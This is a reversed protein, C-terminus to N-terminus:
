SLTSYVENLDLVLDTAATTFVCVRHNAGVPVTVSNAVTQGAVYNLNSALPRESSCPFVTVFGSARPGDVTLNMTVATANPPVGAVNDLNLETVTGADVSGTVRTDLLRQQGANTPFGVASSPSYFGNVDVVLDTATSVFFCVARNSGIRVVASNAITQGAVFNVNSALPVPGGCPYATVFGPSAPGDVTINLLVATADDPMSRGAVSVAFSTGAPVPSGGERTDAIRYPDAAALRGIGESPSYAGNLDIVVDTAVDSVLCVRGSGDLSVSVSSAVTQNALFNVNSTPPRAVDCSFVTIYGSLAASTATVNLVVWSADAPVGSLGAISLHRVIGAALTTDGDRTDLLRVPDIAVFGGGPQAVTGSFVTTAPSGVGNGANITFSYAGGVTPTGTIAGTATDFSLGAPLAGAVVSYAPTPTGTALVGDVFRLGVHMADITADVWTPAEGVDVSIQSSLNPLFGNTTTVTFQYAGAVTPTGTIAGTTNNLVLGAPLSGATISYTPAPAGSARVGDAYVIGVRMTGLLLDTWTPLVGVNGTFQEVLDPAIGNAATITFDYATGASTAVGTLAGTATDFTLGGPLVGGSLSYTAAPHGSASVGDAYVVNHRIPGLTQDTWTLAETVTGSFAQTVPSGVGNDASITFGYAGDTTPTGTIAGTTGNLALGVPLAGATVSYAPAPTGSAAVGDDVAVGIQFANAIVHDTWIPAADVTGTFRQTLDPAIGNTVTITFDYAGATTPTGTVSGTTQDLVLGDPLVGSTVAYTPVPGGTADVGDTYSRGLQLGGLTSDNWVPAATAEFRVSGAKLFVAPPVAGDNVDAVVVRISVPTQNTNQTTVDVVCTLPVSLFQVVWDPNEAAYAYKQNPTATALAAARNAAADGQPAVIGATQMTLYAGSAPVAACNDAPSEGNVFLGFSGAYHFVNGSWATGDWFGMETFVLSYDFKIFNDDPILSFALDTANHICPTM